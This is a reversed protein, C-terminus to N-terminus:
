LRSWRRLNTGYVHTSAGVAFLLVFRLALFGYNICVVYLITSPRSLRAIHAASGSRPKASPWKRSLFSVSRMDMNRSLLASYPRGAPLSSLGGDQHNANLQMCSEERSQKKASDNFYVTFHSHSFTSVQINRIQLSMFRLIVFWNQQGLM